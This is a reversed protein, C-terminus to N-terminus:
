IKKILHTSTRECLLWGLIIGNGERGTKNCCCHWKRQPILPIMKRCRTCGLSIVTFLLNLNIWEWLHHWKEEVIPPFTWKRWSSVQFRFPPHLLATVWNLNSLQNWMDTLLRPHLAGNQAVWRMGDWCQRCTWLSPVHLCSPFPGPVFMYCDEKRRSVRGANKPWCLNFQNNSPMLHLMTVSLQVWALPHITGRTGTTCHTHETHTHPNCCSGGGIREWSDALLFSCSRSSLM